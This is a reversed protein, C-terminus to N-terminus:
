TKTGRFREMTPHGPHSIGRGAIVGVVTMWVIRLDLKLSRNDVYWVDLKFKEDWGIGNRGNVQAWGTIGPRIEHRRSQESNYLPLYEPLLPRPGILSMEGALVNFLEPLEDLSSRRLFRGLTTLREGDSLPAAGPPSDKMTRFKLLTFPEGGRGPRSQRFFVPPGMSALVLFGIAAFLPSLLLIGAAAVAIDVLRRV